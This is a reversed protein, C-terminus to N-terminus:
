GIGDVDGIGDSVGVGIDLMCGLYIEADGGRAAPELCLRTGDRPAGRM